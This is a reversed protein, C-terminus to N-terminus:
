IYCKWPYSSFSQGVVGFFVTFFKNEYKSKSGTMMNAPFLEQLFKIRAYHMNTESHVKHWETPTQTPHLWKRTKTLPRNIRPKKCLPHKHTNELIVGWTTPTRSYCKYPIQFLQSNTTNAYIVSVRENDVEGDESRIKLEFHNWFSNFLDRWASCITFVSWKFFNSSVTHAPISKKM